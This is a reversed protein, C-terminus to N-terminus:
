HFEIWKGLYGPRAKIGHQVLGRDNENRLVVALNFHIRKLLLGNRQQVRVVLYIFGAFYLACLISPVIFSFTIGFYTALPTIVFLGFLIYYIILKEQFSYAEKLPAM